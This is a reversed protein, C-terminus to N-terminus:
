RKSNSEVIIKDGNIIDLEWSENSIYYIGERISVINGKISIKNDFDRILQLERVGDNTFERIYQGGIMSLHPTLTSLVVVMISLTALITSKGVKTVNKIYNDIVSKTLDINSVEIQKWKKLM